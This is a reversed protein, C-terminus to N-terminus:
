PLDSINKVGTPGKRLSLTQGCHETSLDGFLKGSSGSEKTNRSRRRRTEGVSCVNLQVSKWVDGNIGAGSLADLGGRSRLMRRVGSGDRWDSEIRAWCRTRTVEFVAVWIHMGDRRVICRDRM